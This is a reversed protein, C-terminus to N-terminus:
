HQIKFSAELDYIDHICTEIGTNSSFKNRKLIELEEPSTLQRNKSISRIKPTLTISM